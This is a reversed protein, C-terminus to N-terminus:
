KQTHRKEYEDFYEERLKDIKEMIPIRLGRELLVDLREGIYTIWVANGSNELQKNIEELMADWEIGTQALAICDALDGERETLTKFLFIDTTSCLSITLHKLERVKQARNKMRESLMFGKCVARQFLDIRFDERVFIQNIDLKKYEGDPLKSKFGIKKLAKEAAIFDKKEEVVIDVDKTGTKLNHYLLVAGGIIYFHIKVNLTRDLENFLENLQEFESIMFM